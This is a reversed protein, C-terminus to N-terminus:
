HYDTILVDRAASEVWRFVVRYQDNIRISYCDAWEHKLREFHNAPPVRLDRLDHAANIMDLKRHAVNWIARPIKRSAKSDIGHFVDDTTKDAFSQIVYCNLM